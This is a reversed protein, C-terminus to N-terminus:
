SGAGSSPAASGSCSRSRCRGARCRPWTRSCISSPISAIRRSSCTSTASRRCSAAALMADLQATLAGAIAASEVVLNVEREWHSATADLNATGVSAVWGDVVVVKAHVYPRVRGGRATITASAPAAVAGTPALAFAACATVAGAVAVVPRFIM